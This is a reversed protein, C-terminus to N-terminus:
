PKLAGCVPADWGLATHEAILADMKPLLAAQWPASRRVRMDISMAVIEITAALSNKDLNIMFHMKHIRKESRGLIRSHVAIQEGVRVEALYRIHQELAFVGSHTAHMHEVTAGFLGFFGWAARDFLHIYWQINMHGMEDLYEPPIHQTHTQPLQRINELPLM